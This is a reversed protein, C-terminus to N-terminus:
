TVSRIAVPVPNARTCGVSRIARRRIHREATDSVHLQVWAVSQCHRNGRIVQSL